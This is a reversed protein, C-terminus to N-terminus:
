YHNKKREECITTKNNKNNKRKKRYKAITERNIEVILRNRTGNRTASSSLVLTTVENEM